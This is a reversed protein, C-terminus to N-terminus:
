DEVLEYDSYDGSAVREGMERARHRKNYGQGQDGAIVHGNAILRWKFRREGDQVVEDVVLRPRAM